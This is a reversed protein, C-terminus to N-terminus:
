NEEEENIGLVLYPNYDKWRIPVVFNAFPLEPMDGQSGGVTEPVSIKFHEGFERRANGSLTTAIEGVFDRMIEESTDLEGIEKLLQALMSQQTTVYFVGEGKGSVRIVGTYDLIPPLDFSIFPEEMAAQAGSIKEFYNMTVDIFVKLDNETMAPPESIPFDPLAM